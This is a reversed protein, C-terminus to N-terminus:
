DLKTRDFSVGFYDNCLVLIRVCRHVHVQTQTHESIDVCVCMDVFVCMCVHM